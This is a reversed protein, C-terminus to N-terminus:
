PEKSGAPTQQTDPDVKTVIITGAFKHMHGRSKADITGEAVVYQGALGRIRNALSVINAVWLSKKRDLDDDSIYLARNEFRMLLFGRVRVPQGDYQAPNAVIEALLVEKVKEQAHAASIQM